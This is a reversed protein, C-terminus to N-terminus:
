DDDWPIFGGHRVAGLMTGDCLYCRIDHARCVRDVETLIKLMRHQLTQLGDAYEKTIMNCFYLFFTSPPIHFTSFKNGGCM